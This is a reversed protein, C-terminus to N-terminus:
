YPVMIIIQIINSGKWALNNISAVAKCSIHQTCQLVYALFVTSRLGNKEDGILSKTLNNNSHFSHSNDTGIISLNTTKLVAFTAIIVNSPYIFIRKLCFETEVPSEFNDKLAGSKSYIYISIFICKHSTINCHESVPSSHLMKSLHAIQSVNDLSRSASTVM